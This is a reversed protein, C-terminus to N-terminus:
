LSLGRFIVTHSFLHGFDLVNVLMAPRYQQEGHHAVTVEAQPRRNIAAADHDAQYYQQLSPAHAGREVRNQTSFRQM